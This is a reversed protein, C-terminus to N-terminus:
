MYDKLDDLPENFDEPIAVKGELGGLKRKPSPKVVAEETLFTVMVETKVDVPPQEQLVIKGHDYYGKITTLM